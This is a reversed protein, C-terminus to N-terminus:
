ELFGCINQLVHISIKNNEWFFELEESDSDSDNNVITSKVKTQIAM